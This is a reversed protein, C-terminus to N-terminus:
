QWFARRGCRASGTIMALRLHLVDRGAGLVGETGGRLAVGELWVGAVRDIRAFGTDRALDVAGGGGCLWWDVAHRGAWGSETAVRALLPLFVLQGTANAASLAGTVMGRREEFWRNAVVAALVTSPGGTGVGVVVGWLLIMQYPEEIRLTALVGVAADRESYVARDLLLNAAVASSVVTRSWAFETELPVILLGPASRLAASALLVLFTLGAV